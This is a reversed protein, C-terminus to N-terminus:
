INKPPTSTRINSCNVPDSLMRGVATRPKPTNRCYRDGEKQYINHKQRDGGGERDALKDDCFINTIFWGLSRRRLCSEVRRVERAVLSRRM